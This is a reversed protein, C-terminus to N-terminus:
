GGPFRLAQGPRYLSQKVKHSTVSNPYTFLVTKQAQKVRFYTGHDKTPFYRVVICCKGSCRMRSTRSRMICNDGDGAVKEWKRGCTKRLERNEFVSMETRGVISFYSCYIVVINTLM